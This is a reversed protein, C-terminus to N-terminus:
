HFWPLGLGVPTLPDVGRYHECKYPLRVPILTGPAALSRQPQVSSKLHSHGRQERGRSQSDPVKQTRRGEADPERCIVRWSEVQWTLPIVLPRHAAIRPFLCSLRGLLRALGATRAEERHRGGPGHRPSSCSPSCSTVGRSM